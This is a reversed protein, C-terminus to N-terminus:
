PQADIAITTGSRIVRVTGTVVGSPNQLLITTDDGLPAALSARLERDALSLTSLHDVNQGETKWWATTRPREERFRPYYWGALPERQGEVTNLKGEGVASFSSLAGRFGGRANLELLQGEPEAKVKTGLQFFRKYTHTGAALARDAIILGFGPKYLFLRSHQVQYRELVAPNHAWIGYWGDGTGWALIGSGYPSTSEIDFARDVVFTSHAEPSRQFEFYQDRDKHYQGTDSVLREGAEYLEFSLEDSHKHVGSHYAAAIGLWSGAGPDKVVAYGSTPAVWLGSQRAAEQRVEDQPKDLSTDGFQAMRQDPLTLWALSTVLGRRAQRLPPDTPDVTRLYDDVLNIAYDYYGMSHELWVGETANFSGYFTSKYRREGTRAGRAMKADQPLYRGLAALALDMSLGHNTPRYHAPNRLWRGHERISTLLLQAERKDLMRECAAARSVFAVFTARRAAPRDTWTEGNVKGQEEARRWHLVIQLAMRLARKKKEPPYDQSAVYIFLLQDLFVLDALRAEFARSTYPNRTWDIPPRMELVQNHVKLRWNLARRQEALSYSAAKETRYAVPCGPERLYELAAPGAPRAAASSIPGGLLAAVMALSLAGLAGTRLRRLDTDLSVNM